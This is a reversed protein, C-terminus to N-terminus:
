CWLTKKATRLQDLQQSASYLARIRASSNRRWRGGSSHYIIKIAWRQQIMKVCKQESSEGQMGYRALPHQEGCGGHSEHVCGDLTSCCRYLSKNPKGSKEENRDEEALEVHVDRRADAHFFANRVDVFDLKLGHKRKREEYGVEETAALSFLLQKAELPPNAAFLDERSHM